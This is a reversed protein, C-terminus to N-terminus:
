RAENAYTVLTSVAGALTRRGFAGAAVIILALDGPAAIEMADM